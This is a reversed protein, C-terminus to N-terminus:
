LNSEMFAPSRLVVYRREIYPLARSDYLRPYSSTRGEREPMLSVMAGGRAMHNISNDVPGLGLGPFPQARSRVAVSPLTESREMYRSKSRDRVGQVDEDMFDRARFRGGSGQYDYDDMYGSWGGGRSANMNDWM